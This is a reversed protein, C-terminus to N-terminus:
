SGVECGRLKEIARGVMLIFCVDVLTMSNGWVIAMSNLREVAYNGIKVKM